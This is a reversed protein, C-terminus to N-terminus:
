TASWVMLRPSPTRILLSLIDGIAFNRITELGIGFRNFDVTSIHGKEWDSDNRLSKIVGKINSAPYRSRTRRETPENINNNGNWRIDALVRAYNEDRPLLSAEGPKEYNCKFGRIEPRVM